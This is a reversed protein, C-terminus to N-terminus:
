RAKHVVVNSNHRAAAAPIITGLNADMAEALSLETDM